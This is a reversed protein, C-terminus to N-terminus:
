GTKDVYRSRHIRSRINKWGWQSRRTERATFDKRDDVRNAVAFRTGDMSRFCM